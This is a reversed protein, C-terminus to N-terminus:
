IALPQGLKLRRRIKLKQPDVRFWPEIWRAGDRAVRGQAESM